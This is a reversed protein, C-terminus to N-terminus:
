RTKNIINLLQLKGGTPSLLAGFIPDLPGYDKDIWDAVVKGFRLQQRTGWYSYHTEKLSDTPEVPSYCTCDRYM